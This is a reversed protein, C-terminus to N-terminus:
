SKETQKRQEEIKEAAQMARLERWWKKRDAVLQNHRHEDNLMEVQNIFAVLRSALDEMEMNALDYDGQNSFKTNALIVSLQMHKWKEATWGIGALFVNLRGGCTKRMTTKALDQVEDYNVSRYRRGRGASPELAPVPVKDHKKWPWGRRIECVPRCRGTVTDGNERPSDKVIEYLRARLAASLTNQKSTKWTNYMEVTWRGGVCRMCKDISGDFLMTVVMETLELTSSFLAPGTCRLARTLEM